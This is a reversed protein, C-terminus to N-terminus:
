NGGKLKCVKCYKKVHADVLSLLPVITEKNLSYINKRGEKKSMVFECSRLLMLGHSVKSREEGLEGSLDTVNMPKKKLAYIIGIKLKSGLVGFFLHCPNQKKSTKM